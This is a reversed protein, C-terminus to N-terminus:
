LNKTLLLLLGKYILLLPIVEVGAIYLFFHFRSVKLQNQLLGYSRFFRLLLLFGIIFLSILASTIAVAPDAFAMFVTFPILLIGIIKCILFIIFIYADTAERYGTVWGTFKLTSFKAIYILGLILICAGIMIWKDNGSILRYQMLLFYVYVGGSIIFFINFFLSPLKSQLLQDTLQSQRLSTNFFVRFLTAFYRAFFFKILAMIFVLAALLYFIADEEGAKKAKVAMSVPIGKSNLFTNQDLLTQIALNYKNVVPMVVQQQLSDKQVLSSDPKQAYIFIPVCLMCCFCFLLKKM